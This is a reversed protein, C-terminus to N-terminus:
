LMLVEKDLRHPCPFCTCKVIKKLHEKEVIIATEILKQRETYRSNRTNDDQGGIVVPHCGIMRCISVLWDNGLPPWDDQRILLTDNLIRDFAGRLFVGSLLWRAM